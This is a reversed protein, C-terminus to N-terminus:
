ACFRAQGPHFPLSPVAAAARPLPVSACGVLGILVPITLLRLPKM